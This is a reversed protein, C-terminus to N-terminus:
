VRSAVRARSWQSYVSELVLSYVGVQIWQSTLTLFQDQFFVLLVPYFAFARIVILYTPPRSRTFLLGLAAGILALYVLFGWGFDLFPAHIFTYANAPLPVKVFEQTLALPTSNPVGLAELLAYIFRFTYQGDTHELSSNLAVDLASLPSLTYYLVSQVGAQVNAWFSLDIGGAKKLLVGSLIFLSALLAAYAGMQRKGLAKTTHGCFAAAVLLMFIATRQTTLFAIAIAIALALYSAIRQRFLANRSRTVLYIASVYVFTCAYKIVGWDAGEYNLAVRLAQPINVGEVGATITRAKFFVLVLIGVGMAIFYKDLRKEPGRSPSIYPAVEPRRAGLHLSNALVFGVCIAIVGGTVAGTAVISAENLPIIAAKSVIWHLALVAIWVSLLIRLIYYNRPARAGILAYLACLIVLPLAYAM